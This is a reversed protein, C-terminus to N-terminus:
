DAHLSELANKLERIATEHDEFNLASIAWKAHKQAKAMDEDDPIPKNSYLSPKRSYDDIPPQSPQPMSSPQLYQHQPYYPRHQSPPNQPVSPISAQAFDPGPLSKFNHPARRSSTTSLTPSPPSPQHPPPPSASTMPVSPFYSGGISGTDYNPSPEIPSVEQNVTTSEYPHQVASTPQSQEPFPQLSRDLGSQGAPPSEVMDQEDPVDQISAQRPNSSSANLAQVEPDNPDLPRLENFLETEPTQQPESKPRPNSENPDKGEKIAKV